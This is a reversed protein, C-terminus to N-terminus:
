EEKFYELFIKRYVEKLVYYQEETRPDWDSVWFDEKDGYRQKRRAFCSIIGAMTYDNWEEREKEISEKVESKNLREPKKTLKRLFILQRKSYTDNLFDKLEDENWETNSKKDPPTTSDSIEINSLDVNEELYNAIKELEEAKNLKIKRKLPFSYKGIDFSEIHGNRIELKM